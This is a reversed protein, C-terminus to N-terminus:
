RTMQKRVGGAAVQRSRGALVTLPNKVTKVAWLQTKEWDCLWGEHSSM